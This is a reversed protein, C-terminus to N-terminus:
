KSKSRNAHSEQAARVSPDYTRAAEFAELGDEPYLFVRDSIKVYRPGEGIARWSRLTVPSVGYRKSVDAPKLLNCRPM